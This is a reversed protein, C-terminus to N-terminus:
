TGDANGKNVDIEFIISYKIKKYGEPTVYFLKRKAM